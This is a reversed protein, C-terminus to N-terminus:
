SPLFRPRFLCYLSWNNWCDNSERMTCQRRRCRRQWKVHIMSYRCSLSSMTFTNTATPLCINQACFVMTDKYSDFHHGGVSHQTNALVTDPLAPPAGGGCDQQSDMIQEMMAASLAFDQNLGALYDQVLVVQQGQQGLSGLGGM